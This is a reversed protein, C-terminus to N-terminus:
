FVIKEWPYFTRRMAQRVEELGCHARVLDAEPSPDRLWDAAPRDHFDRDVALPPTMGAFTDFLFLQRCTSDLQLLALAAAMTSGGKWVGCEVVAGAIGGAELYAISQCMAVVREFSTMTYPRVQRDIASHRRAMKACWFPLPVRPPAKQLGIRNLLRRTRVALSVLM